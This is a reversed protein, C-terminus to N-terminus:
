FAGHVVVKGHGPALSVRIDVPLAARKESARHVFFLVSATTGLALAAAGFGDALYVKKRYTDSFESDSCFRPGDCRDYASRAALAYGVFLGASALGVAGLTIIAPTLSGREAPTPGTSERPPSANDERGVDDRREHSLPRALSSDVRAAREDDPVSPAGAPLRTQETERQELARLKVLRAKVFAVNDASPFADLYSSYAAIARSTRGDSDAARGVNFLLQPLRSLTYAREFHALAQAFLGQEYADRGAEFASRAEAEHATQQTDQAVGPEAYAVSCLLVVCLGVVRSGASACGRARSRLISLNSVVTM